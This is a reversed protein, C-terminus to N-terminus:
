SQINILVGQLTSIKWEKAKISKFFEDGGLHSKYDLKSM